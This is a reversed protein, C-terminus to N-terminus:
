EDDNVESEMSSPVWVAKGIREMDEWRARFYAEGPITGYKGPMCIFGMAGFSKLETVLMFCGAFFGKKEGLHAAPDLQVVDGVKLSDNKDM